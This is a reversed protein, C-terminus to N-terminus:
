DIGSVTHLEIFTSVKEVSGFDEPAIDISDMSIGYEEEIWIIFRVLSLSDIVGNSLLDINTPLSAPDIDPALEECIYAKINQEHIM